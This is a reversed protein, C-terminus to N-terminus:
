PMKGGKRKRIIISKDPPFIQHKHLIIHAPYQSVLFDLFVQIKKELPRFFLPHLMWILFKDLQALM